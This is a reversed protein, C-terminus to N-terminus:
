EISITPVQSSNSVGHRHMKSMKSKEVLNRALSGLLFIFEHWNISCFLLSMQRPKGHVVPLNLHFWTECICGTVLTM